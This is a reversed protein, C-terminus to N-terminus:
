VQKVLSVYKKAIETIGAWDNETIKKKDIINSGLGFGNIGAKLYEAINSEDVGGVALMKLHSLPAKVAKVYSAGLSTVPFIKIFDAGSRHAIQMESPTLAGPRSVLGLERTKEIVPPCTDPSIIFKGGAQATLAVQKETLVTGAGIYMRGAFHEALLRINEATDEDSVKGNASYTIELLRIGGAYMAEALPILKEREVGRVIVIIKEQEVTKIIQERM